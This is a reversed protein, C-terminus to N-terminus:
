EIKISRKLIDNLIIPNICDKDIYLLDIKKNLKNELDNVTNTYNTLKKFSADKVEVALDIDSDTNPHGYVYSGFFYIREIGYKRRLENISSKLISIIQEKDLM